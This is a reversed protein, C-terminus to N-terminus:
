SVEAVAGMQPKYGRHINPPMHAVADSGGRRIGCVRTTAWSVSSGRARPPRSCGREREAAAARAANRRDQEQRWVFDEAEAAAHERLREELVHRREGDGLGPLERDIDAGIRARRARRLHIVNGCNECDEGTDLRIEDDCKRHSCARRQPLGRRTLWPFPRDVLAEGGTEGLRDALRDALLRPARLQSLPASSM